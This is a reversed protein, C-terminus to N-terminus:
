NKALRMNASFMEDSHRSYYKTFTAILDDWEEREATGEEPQNEEWWTACPEGCPAEVAAWDGYVRVLVVDRSDAGYYHSLVYFALVNPNAKEQPLMIQEIGRMVKARDEGLPVKFTSMTVIGQMPGEDEADQAVLAQPVSLYAMVALGVSWKKM